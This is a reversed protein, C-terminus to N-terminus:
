NPGEYEFNRNHHVMYASKKITQINHRIYKCVRLVPRIQNKVQESPSGELVSPVLKPTMREEVRSCVGLTASLFAEDFNPQGQSYSLFSEKTTPNTVQDLYDLLGDVLKAKKIPYNLTGMRDSACHKLINQMLAAVSAGDEGYIEYDHAVFEPQSRCDETIARLTANLISGHHNDLLIAVPVYSFLWHMSNSSLRLNLDVQDKLSEAIESLPEFHRRITQAMTGITRNFIVEYNELAYNTCLANTNEGIYETLPGLVSVQESNVNRMKEGLTEMKIKFDDGILEFASDCSIKLCLISQSIKCQNLYPITNILDFSNEDILSSIQASYNTHCKSESIECAGLLTEIEEARTRHISM